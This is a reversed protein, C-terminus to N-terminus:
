KNEKSKKLKLDDKLQLDKTLSVTMDGATETDGLKRMVQIINFYYDDGMGKVSFAQILSKKLTDVESNTLSIDKSNSKSKYYPDIYKM